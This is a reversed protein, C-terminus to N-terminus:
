VAKQGLVIVKFTIKFNEFNCAYITGILYSQLCIHDRDHSFNCAYKAGKQVLIAHMNPGWRLWSQLCIQGGDRDLNCAYKTGIVVLIAHM